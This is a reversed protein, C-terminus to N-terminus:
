VYPFFDKKLSDIKGTMLSNKFIVTRPECFLVGHNPRCPRFHEFLVYFNSLKYIMYLNGAQNTDQGSPSYDSGGIPMVDCTKTEVLGVFNM